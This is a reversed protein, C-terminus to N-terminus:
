KMKSTTGHQFLLEATASIPPRPWLLCPGFLPPSSHRKRWYSPIRRICLPRPRPRSGNTWKPVNDKTAQPPSLCTQSQPLAVNREYKLILGIRDNSIIIERWRALKWILQQSSCLSEAFVNIVYAINCIRDLHSVQNELAACCIVVAQVVDRGVFCRGLCALCCIIRIEVARHM